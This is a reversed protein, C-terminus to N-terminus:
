RTDGTWFFLKNNFINIQEENNLSLFYISSTIIEREFELCKAGLVIDTCIPFNLLSCKIKLKNNKYDRINRNIVFIYVCPLYKRFM